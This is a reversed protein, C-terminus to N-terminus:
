LQSLMIALQNWIMPFLLFAFYKKLNIRKENNKRWSIEGNWSYQHLLNCGFFTHSFTYLCGGKRSEKLFPFSFFCSNASVLCFVIRRCVASEIPLFIWYWQGPKKALLRWTIIWLFLISIKHKIHNFLLELSGNMKGLSSFLRQFM